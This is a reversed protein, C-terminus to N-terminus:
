VNEQQQKHLKRANRQNFNERELRIIPDELDLIANAEKDKINENNSSSKQNPGKTRHADDRPLPTSYKATAPIKTVEPNRKM